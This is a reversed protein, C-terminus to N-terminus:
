AIIALLATGAERQDGADPPWVAFRDRGAQKAAYLAQDGRSYLEAASVDDDLTAVGASATVRVEEGGVLVSASRIGELLRGAVREAQERAAGPLLVAFEEGGMRAVRDEVRAATDGERVGASLTRAVLQLVLDGAPHGHRDNVLKFGDLDLVILSLPQGFPQGAFPLFGPWLGERSVSM